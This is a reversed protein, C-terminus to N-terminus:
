SPSEQNKTPLKRVGLSAPFLPAELDRTSLLSYVGPYHLLHPTPLWM